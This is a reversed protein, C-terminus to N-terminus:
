TRECNVEAKVTWGFREKCREFCDGCIWSKSNPEFYGEHLDEPYSSFRAWCLECHDHEITPCTFQRKQLKRDHLYPKSQYDWEIWEHEEQNSLQNAVM